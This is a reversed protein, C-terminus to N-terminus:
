FRQYRGTKESLKYAILTSEIISETNWICGGSFNWESYWLYNNRISVGPPIEIGGFDKRVLSWDILNSYFAPFSISGM